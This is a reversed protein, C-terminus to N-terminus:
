GCLPRGFHRADIVKIAPIFIQLRFEQLKTCVYPPHALLSVAARRAQWERAEQASLSNEALQQDIEEKHDYFYSLGGCIKAFGRRLYIDKGGDKGRAYGEHFLFLM